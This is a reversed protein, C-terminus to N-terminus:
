RAVYSIILAHINGKLTHAYGFYSFNDGPGLPLFSVGDMCNGMTHPETPDPVVPQAFLLGTLM